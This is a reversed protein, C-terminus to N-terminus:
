GFQGAVIHSISGARRAYHGCPHQPHRRLVFQGLPTGYSEGCFFIKDYGLGQRIADVDDANENSNYASLNIGQAEFAKACKLLADRRAKGREEPWLGQTSAQLTLGNYAPCDLTPQALTTGRRSFLVFDRDKLIPGYTTLFGSGATGQVSHLGPGGIGLLSPAAFSFLRLICLPTM